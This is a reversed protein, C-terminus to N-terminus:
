RAVSAAGGALQLATFLPDSAVAYAQATRLSQRGNRGDHSATAASKGALAIHRTALVNCGATWAYGPTAFQSWLLAGADTCALRQWFFRLRQQLPGHPGGCRIPAATTDRTM